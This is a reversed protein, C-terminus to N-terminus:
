NKCKKPRKSKDSITKEKVSKTSKEIREILGKLGVEVGENNGKKLITMYFTQVM